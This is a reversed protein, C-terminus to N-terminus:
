VRGRRRMGADEPTHDDAEWTVDDHTEAAGTDLWATHHRGDHAELVRRGCLWVCASRHCRCHRRSTHLLPM